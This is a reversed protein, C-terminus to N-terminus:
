LHHHGTGPTLSHPPREPTTLGHLYKSQVLICEVCVPDVFGSFTLPQPPSLFTNRHGRLCNAKIGQCRSSEWPLEPLELYDRLVRQIASPGTSPGSFLFGLTPPTTIPHSLSKNNRDETVHLATRYLSSIMKETRTWPSVWSWRTPAIPLCGSRFPERVALSATAKPLRFGKTM